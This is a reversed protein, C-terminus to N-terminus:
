SREEEGLKTIEEIMEISEKAEEDTMVAIAYGAHVLLWDGVDVKEVLQINAKIRAGALDVEAIEGEIELVKAPIALCM